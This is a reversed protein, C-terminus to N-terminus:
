DDGFWKLKWMILLMVATSVGMLLMVIGFGIISQDDGANYPYWVNMGFLGTIFTLPLMVATLITLRLVIRGVHESSEALEISVQAIYSDQANDLLNESQRLRFLCAGIMQRVRNLREESAGEPDTKKDTLLRSVVLDQQLLISRLVYIKRQSNLIGRRMDRYESVDLDELNKASVEAEHVNDEILTHLDRSVEELFRCLISYSTFPREEENELSSFQLWIQEILPINSEIHITILGDPLIVLFISESNPTGRHVQDSPDSPLVAITVNDYIDVRGPPGSEYFFDQKLTPPLKFVQQLHNIQAESPHIIDLWFNSPLDNLDTVDQEGHQTLLRMQANFATKSTM